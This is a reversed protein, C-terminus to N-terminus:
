RAQYLELVAAWGSPMINPSEQLEEGYKCILDLFMKAHFYAELIPRTYRTWDNNHTYDFEIGTGEKIIELFWENLERDPAIIKILEVINKTQEQLFYVKFSMHYFRYFEDVGNNRLMEKIQPLKEKIRNVIEKRFLNDRELKEDFEKLAVPKKM